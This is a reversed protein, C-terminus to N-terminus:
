LSSELENKWGEIILVDEDKTELHKKIHEPNIIYLLCIVDQATKKLVDKSTFDIINVDGLTKVRDELHSGGNLLLRYAVHEYYDFLKDGLVEKISSDNLMQTPGIKYMFTGYAELVRRMANGMFYMNQDNNSNAFQFICKLLYSYESQNSDFDCINSSDLKLTKPWKKISPINLFDFVVNYVEKTVDEVIQKYDNQYDIKTPFVEIVLRLYNVGDIQIVLDSFGIENGFNIVGSLIEHNRSARTVKNRVNLNDNM